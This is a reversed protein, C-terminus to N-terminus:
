SLKKGTGQQQRLHQVQRLGPQGSAAHCPINIKAAPM